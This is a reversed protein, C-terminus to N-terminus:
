SVVEDDHDGDDSHRCGGDYNDDRYMMTTTVMTVMVFGHEFM